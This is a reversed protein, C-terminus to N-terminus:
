LVSVIEWQEQVIQEPSVLYTQENINLRMKIRLWTLHLMGKEKLGHINQKSNQAM